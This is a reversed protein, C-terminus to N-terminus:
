VSSKPSRKSAKRPAEKTTKRAAPRKAAKRTAVKKSQKVGAAAVKRAPAKKVARKRNGGTAASRIERGDLLAVMKKPAVARFSEDIWAALLALPPRSRPGFSASVWGHKGMGYGTPTTFPLLLAEFSSAPLKVSLNLGEESCGVFIFAKKSVKYACHGWPNDEYAGPFGLAIARIAEENKYLLSGPRPPNGHSM